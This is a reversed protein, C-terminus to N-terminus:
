WSVECNLTFGCTLVPTDPARGCECVAPYVQLIQQWWLWGVASGWGGSEVVTEVSELGLVRGRGAKRRRAGFSSCHGSFHM